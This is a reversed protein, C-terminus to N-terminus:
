PPDSADREFQHRSIWRSVPRLVVNVLLALLTLAAALVVDRAGAATGIVAVAWLTAASSLGRVTMGDRLILGAGLFGVGQAIAGFGNGWNSREVESVVLDAFGAAAVCVIVCVRLQGAHGRLEREAGILAGCLFAAALVVVTPDRELMGNLADLM